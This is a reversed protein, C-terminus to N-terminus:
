LMCCLRLVWSQFHFPTKKQVSTNKEYVHLEFPASFMNASLSESFLILYTCQLPNEKYDKSSFSYQNLSLTNNLNDLPFSNRQMIVLQKTKKDEFIM